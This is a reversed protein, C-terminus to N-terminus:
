PLWGKEQILAETRKAVEPLALGEARWAERERSLRELRDGWDEPLKEGLWRKLRRALGPSKGATSIALTLAGRRLMAPVHFDCLPRVDETNVWTKAARAADVLPQAEEPEIDAIFLIAFRAAEEETPLRRVLREGAAAAFTDSPEPAFVQVAGAGAEDLLTLRREAQPGSGALGIALDKVDVFLPFM